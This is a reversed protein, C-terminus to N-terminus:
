EGYVFGSIRAGATFIGIILRLVVLMYINVSMSAVVGTVLLSLTSILLM